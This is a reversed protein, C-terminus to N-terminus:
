FGTGRCFVKDLPVLHCGVTWVPHSLPRDGQHPWDVCEMPVLGRKFCILGKISLTMELGHLRGEYICLPFFQSQPMKHKVGCVLERLMKRVSARRKGTRSSESGPMCCVKANWKFCSQKRKARCHSGLSHNGSKFRNICVVTREKM